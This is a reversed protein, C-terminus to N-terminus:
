IYLNGSRSSSKSVEFDVEISYVEKEMRVLSPGVVRKTYKVGRKVEKNEYIYAGSPEEVIEVNEKTESM